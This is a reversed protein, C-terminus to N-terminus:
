GCAMAEILIKPNGEIISPLVFIDTKEFIKPLHKYEVPKNINLSVGKNKALNELAKSESGAGYLNLEYAFNLMSCALILSELNKQKELRGIFTITLKKHNKRNEIFKFLKLDVGNPILNIRNEKVINKIQTKLSQTTIIVGDAARLVPYKIVKYLLSRFNKGEIAAFQSYDYGYNVAYPLGFFTKAIFAPIGGSIQLGRLVSCERIVKREIFPLLIAYLYRHINYNNGILICNPPLPYTEKAYSFLYVKGFAQSYSTINYDLLRKLQGKKEFDALSEGIALFVGLHKSRKTYKKM